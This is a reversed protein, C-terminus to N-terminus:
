FGYFISAGKNIDYIIIQNKKDKDHLGIVIKGNSWDPTFYDVYKNKPTIVKLNKGAQNSVYIFSYDQSNLTKDGNTDIPIVHYVILGPKLKEPEEGLTSNTVYVDSTFVQYKENQAKNLFVFNLIRGDTDYLGEGSSIRKIYDSTGSIVPLVIYNSSQLIIAQGFQKQAEQTKEAPELSVTNGTNIPILQRGFLSIFDGATTLVVILVICLLIIGNLRWAFNSFKRFRSM